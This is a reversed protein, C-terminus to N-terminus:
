HLVLFQHNVTTGKDRIGHRECHSVNEVFIDAVSFWARAIRSLEEAMDCKRSGGLHLVLVGDPKLRERCQRFVPEYVDFGHRQREDVFAGSKQQFDEAEWGAFWLRM